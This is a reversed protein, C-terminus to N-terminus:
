KCGDFRSYEGMCGHIPCPYKISRRPLNPCARTKLHRTLNGVAHIGTLVTGCQYPCVVSYDTMDQPTSRPTSRPASYYETMSLHRPFSPEKEQIGENVFQKGSEPAQYDISPPHEETVSHLDLSDTRRVYPEGVDDITETQISVALNHPPNYHSESANNGECNAAIMISTRCYKHLVSNTDTIWIGLYIVGFRKLISDPIIGQVSSGLRAEHLSTKLRAFSISRV